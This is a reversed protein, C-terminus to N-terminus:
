EDSGGGPGHPGRVNPPAPSGSDPTIGTAKSDSEGLWESNKIQVSRRYLYRTGFVILVVLVGLVLSIVHKHAFSLLWEIM